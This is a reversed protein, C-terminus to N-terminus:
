TPVPTRVVPSGNPLQAAIDDASPEQNGNSILYFGLGVVLVVFVVASIWGGPSLESFLTTTGTSRAMQVRDSIAQSINASVKSIETWYSRAAEAITSATSAKPESSRIPVEPESSVVRTEPEVPAEPETSVPPDMLQDITTDPTAEDDAVATRCRPCFKYESALDTGCQECQLVDTATGCYPCFEFNGAIERQCQKCQIPNTQSSM